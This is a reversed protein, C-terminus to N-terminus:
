SEDMIWFNSFASWLNCEEDSFRGDPYVDHEAMDRLAYIQEATYVAKSGRVEPCAKRTELYRDKLYTYKGNM